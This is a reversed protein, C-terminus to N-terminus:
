HKKLESEKLKYDNVLGVLPKFLTFYLILFLATTLISSDILTEKWGVPEQAELVVMVMTEIMFICVLLTFMLRLPSLVFAKNRHGLVLVKKKLPGTTKESDPKM